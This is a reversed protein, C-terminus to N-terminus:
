AGEEDSSVPQLRQRRAWEMSAPVSNRAWWDLEEDLRRCARALDGARLKRTLPACGADGSRLAALNGRIMEPGFEMYHCTFHSSLDVALRYGMQGEFVEIRAGLPVPLEASDASALMFEGRDDEWRLRGLVAARVSMVARDEASLRIGPDPLFRDGPYVHHKEFPNERYALLYDARVVPMLRWDTLPFAARFQVFSLRDPDGTEVPIYETDRTTAFKQLLPKMAEM